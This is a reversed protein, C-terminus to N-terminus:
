AAPRAWISRLPTGSNSSAPPISINPFRHAQPPSASCCSDGGRKARFVSRAPGAWSFISCRSEVWIFWDRPKALFLIPPRRIAASSAPSPSRTDARPVVSMAHSASVYTHSGKPADIYGESALRQYALLVTNRSVGLHEALQRTSPIYCGPRLKGGSILFRIQEGIQEHLARDCALDIQIPIQVASPGRAAAPSSLHDANEAPVPALAPQTSNSGRTKRRLM